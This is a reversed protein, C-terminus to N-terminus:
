SRRKENDYRLQVGLDRYVRTIREPRRSNLARAVDDMSDLRAYVEAAEVVTAKPM